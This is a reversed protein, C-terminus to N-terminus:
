IAAVAREMAAEDFAPMTIIRGFGQKAYWLSFGLVIFADSAEVVDVFDHVGQTYYVAEISMGMEDAKARCAGVRKDNKGIWEPALSGVFIYKM